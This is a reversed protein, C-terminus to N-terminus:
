HEIMIGAARIKQKVEAIVEACAEHSPLPGLLKAEDSDSWEMVVHFGDERPWIRFDIQITDSM